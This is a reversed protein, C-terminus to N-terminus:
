RRPAVYGIKEFVNRIQKEPDSPLNGEDDVGTFGTFFIHNGSIIGPSMKWDDYYSQVEKPVIAHRTM